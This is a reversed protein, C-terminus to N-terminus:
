HFVCLRFNQLGHPHGLHLMQVYAGDREAERQAVTRALGNFSRRFTRSLLNLSHSRMEDLGNIFDAVFDAYADGVFSDGDRGGRHDDFARSAFSIVDSECAGNVFRRAVDANIEYAAVGRENM